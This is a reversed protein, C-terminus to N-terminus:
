RDEKRKPLRKSKMAHRLTKSPKIDKPQLRWGFLWHRREPKEGLSIELPRYSGM